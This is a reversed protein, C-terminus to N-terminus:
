STEQTEYFLRELWSRDTRVMFSHRVPYVNRRNGNGILKAIGPSESKRSNELRSKFWGAGCPRRVPSSSSAVTRPGTEHDGSPYITWFPTHPHPHRLTGVPRHPHGSRSQSIVRASQQNASQLLKLDYFIHDMSGHDIITGARGSYFFPHRFFDPSTDM